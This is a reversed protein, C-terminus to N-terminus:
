GKTDPSWRYSIYVYAANPSGAQGFKPHFVLSSIGGEGTRSIGSMIPGIDFFPKKDTAGETHSVSWAKGDKGVIILRDEVPHEVIRLPEVFTLGPYYDAQVYKADPSTGPSTKPFAGDLFAGVPTASKLGSEAQGSSSFFGGALTFLSAVCLRRLAITM